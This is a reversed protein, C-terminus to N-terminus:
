SEKLTDMTFSLIVSSSSINLTLKVSSGASWALSPFRTVTDGSKAVTVIWSLSPLCVYKVVFTNLLLLWMNM